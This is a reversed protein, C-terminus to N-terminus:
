RSEAFKDDPQFELSLHHYEWTPSLSQVELWAWHPQESSTLLREVDQDTYCPILAHRIFRKHYPESASQELQLALKERNTM